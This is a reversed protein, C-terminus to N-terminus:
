PPGAPGPPAPKEDASLGFLEEVQRPTDLADLAAVLRREEWQFHSELIATLGDLERRVHGSNEPTLTSLIETLQALVDAV